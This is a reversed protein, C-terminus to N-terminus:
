RAGRRAWAKGLMEVGWFIGCACSFGRAFADGTTFVNYAAGAFFLAALFAPAIWRRPPPRDFFDGADLRTRATPTESPSWCAEAHIMSARLLELADPFEPYQERLQHLQRAHAEVFGARDTLLKAAVCENFAHTLKPLVKDVLRVFRAEPARQEEKARTAIRPVNELLLLKPPTAWTALMLRTWVLALENMAAYTETQAKEDSILGSAGKCPPSFFVVDPATAGFAEVLQASTLDRVDACLCPAGTLSTFAACAGADFDIGGLVKFSAEIGLRELAANARQFGLAGGAIGGFPFLATFTLKTIGNGDM